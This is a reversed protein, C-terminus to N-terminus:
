VLADALTPRDPLALSLTPTVCTPQLLLRPPEPVAERLPEVQDAEEMGRSEPVLVTLM